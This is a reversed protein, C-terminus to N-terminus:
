DLSFLRTANEGLILDKEKENINSRSVVGVIKNLNDSWSYPYDSGLMIKRAGWLRVAYEIAPAFYSISDLYFMQLYKEPTSRLKSGDPSKAAARNLRGLCFPLMGGLHALVIKARPFRDMFGNLMIRIAVKSTENPFLLGTMTLFDTSGSDQSLIPHIYIPVNRRVIRELVPMFHEDYISYTGTHTGLMFGKLGLEDIAFDIEDIADNPSTVPLVGIGSFKKPYNRVINSLEINLMRSAKKARKPPAYSMLPNGFSLVQMNVGLKQMVKLRTQMNWMSDFAKIKYGSASKTEYIYREGRSDNYIQGFSDLIDLFTKTFIHCHIDIRAM